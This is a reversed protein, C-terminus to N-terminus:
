YETIEVNTIKNQEFLLKVKESCIINLTNKNTFFDTGNWTNLDFEHKKTEYNNLAELNTLEGVIETVYFVFYKQEPYNEIEIPFCNWGTINNIELVDKVKESIAFKFSDAFQIIDFWKKGSDVKFKNNKVIDSKDSLHEFKNYKTQSQVKIPSRGYSIKVDLIYFKHNM